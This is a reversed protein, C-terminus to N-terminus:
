QVKKSDFTAPILPTWIPGPAVANVRIGKDALNLALSRTLSTIAGEKAFAIAVARGIGNDRETILANKEKLKNSGIYNENDYIPEPEM